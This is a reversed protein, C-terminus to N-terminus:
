HRAPVLEAARWMAQRARAIFDKQPMSFTEGIHVRHQADHQKDM